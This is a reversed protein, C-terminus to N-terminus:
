GVLILQRLKAIFQFWSFITQNFESSFFGGCDWQLHNGQRPFKDNRSCQFSSIPPPFCAPVCGRNHLFVSITWTYVLLHRRGIQRLLPVPACKGIEFLPKRKIQRLSRFAEWLRVEQRRFGTRHLMSPVRESKLWSKFNNDVPSKFQDIM